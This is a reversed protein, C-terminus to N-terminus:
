IDAKSQKSAWGSLGSEVVVGDPGITSRFIGYPMERGLSRYAVRRERVQRRENDNEFWNFTWRGMDICKQVNDRDSPPVRYGGHVIQHRFKRTNELQEKLFKPMTRRTVAEYKSLRMPFNTRTKKIFKETATSGEAKEMLEALKAEVISEIATTIRRVADSYNGREMFNIADLLEFEGPTPTAIIMETLHASDTLRYSRPRTENLPFVLPVHDWERYPVLSALASQGERDVYWFPVDWPAVEFTFRDYTALRYARILANVVPIHARCLEVLYLRASAPQDSGGISRKKWVDENCRSGIELVTKCKRWQAMPKPQELLLRQLEKSLDEVRKIPGQYISTAKADSVMGVQLEFTEGLVKVPFTHGGVEVSVTTNDVMLWFPLEVRLAVQIWPADWALEQGVWYSSPPPGRSRLLSRIDGCADASAPAGARSDM